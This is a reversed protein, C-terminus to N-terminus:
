GNVASRTLGEMGINGRATRFVPPLKVVGLSQGAFSFAEVGAPQEMSVFIQGGAADCAIDEFDSASTRAPVPPDMRGATIGGTAPDLTLRLPIIAREKDSVAFYLDGRYWSLGSLGVVSKLNLSFEPTKGAPSIVLGAMSVRMAALFLATRLIMPFVTRRFGASALSSIRLGPPSFGNDSRGPM